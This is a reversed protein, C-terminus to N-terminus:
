SGEPFDSNLPDVVIPNNNRGLAECDMPPSTNFIEQARLEMAKQMTYMSVDALPASVNRNGADSALDAAPHAATDLNVSHSLRQPKNRRNFWAHLERRHKDALANLDMLIDRERMVSERIRKWKEHESQAENLELRADNLAARAIELELDAMHHHLKAEVTDLHDYGLSWELSEVMQLASNCREKTLEFAKRALDIAIKANEMRTFAMHQNARARPLRVLDANKQQDTHAPYALSFRGSHHVPRLPPPLLKGLRPLCESPDPHSSRYAEFRQGLSSESPSRSHPTQQPPTRCNSGWDAQVTSFDYSPNHEM